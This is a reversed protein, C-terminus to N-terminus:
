NESSGLASADNEESTKTDTSDSLIEESDEKELYGEKSNAGLFDMVKQCLLAREYSETGTENIFDLLTPYDNIVEIWESAISSYLEDDSVTINELEAIKKYVLYQKANSEAYWKIYDEATGVYEDAEMQSKLISYRTPAETEEEENEKAAEKQAELINDVKSTIIQTYDAILEAPINAISSEEVVMDSATNRVEENYISIMQEDLYKKIDEKLDSVTNVDKIELTKVYEDTIDCPVAVEKLTLRYESTSDGEGIIVEESDGAKKGEIATHFEEPYNEDGLVYTYENGEVYAGSADKFAIEVKVQVDGQAIADEKVEYCGGNNKIIDDIVAQIDEDTPTKLTVKTEVNKYEGLTVASNDAAKSTAETGADTASDTAPESSCASILMAIALSTVFACKTRKM